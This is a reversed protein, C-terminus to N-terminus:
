RVTERAILEEVVDLLVPYTGTDSKGLRYKGNVVIAPVGTVAYRRSLDQAIRMKQSVEFSSWTKNFDDESVGLRAFLEQISGQSTMRNGRRHYETFIAARFADPDKIKGTTVLAEETYYLQAHLNVLPNWTAPVRVFRSNLPMTETWPNIYSEFEFCHGCGYWFFESVEVKDAGGLTPQTPVLRHYHTGEKYKWDQSAAAATAQALIIPKDGTDEAEAEGGSEEVTQPRAEDTTDSETAVPTAESNDVAAEETAAPTAVTDTTNEDSSCAALGLFLLVAISSLIKM